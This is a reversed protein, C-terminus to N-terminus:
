ANRINIIIKIIILIISIKLLLLNRPKSIIEKSLRLTAKFNDTASPIKEKFDLIGLYKIALINSM